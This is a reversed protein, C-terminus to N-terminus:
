IEGFGTQYVVASGCLLTAFGVSGLPLSELSPFSGVISCYLLTNELSFLELHTM